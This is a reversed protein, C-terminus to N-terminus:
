NLLEVLLKLFGRACNSNRQVILRLKSNGPVAYSGSKLLDFTARLDHAVVCRTFSTMDRIMVVDDAAPYPWTEEPKLKSDKDPPIQSTIALILWLLLHKM